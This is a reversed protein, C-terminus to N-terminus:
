QLQAASVTDSMWGFVPKHMESRLRFTNIHKYNIIKVLYGKVFTLMAVGVTDYKLLQNTIDLLLLADIYYCHWLCICMALLKLLYDGPNEKTRLLHTNSTIPRTTKPCSHHFTKLSVKGDATPRRIMKSEFFTETELQIPAMCVAGTTRNSHTHARTHTHNNCQVKLAM